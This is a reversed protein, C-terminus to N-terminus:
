SLKAATPGEKGLYELLSRLCALSRLHGLFREFEAEVAQVRHTEVFLRSQNFSGGPVGDDEPEDLCHMFDGSLSEFDALAYLPPFDLSALGDFYKFDGKIADMDVPQEANELQSLIERVDRISPFMPRWQEEGQDGAAVITWADDDPNM